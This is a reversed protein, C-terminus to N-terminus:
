AERRLYQVCVCGVLVCGVMPPFFYRLQMGYIGPLGTSDYQLWLAVYTLVVIGFSALLFLWCFMLEVAHLRRCVSCAALLVLVGILLLWAAAISMSGGHLANNSQGHTVSWMLACIVDGMTHPQTLLAHKRELMTEYSVLMPTTTYWNNMRMWFMLWVVALATGASCSAVMAKDAHEAKLLRRQMWPLILLLVVYPAFIFKTMAMVVGIAVCAYVYRRSVKVCAARYVMCTLLFVLAQTFSDASIAFSSRFILPPLLMTLGVVLRWRTLAAVACFMCLAYVLLMVVEAAYYTVGASWHLVKGLAFVAIQPAYSVPSNTATNNHPLEVRDPHGQTPKVTDVLAVTSDYGDFHAESYDFWQRDVSGGVTGTANHLYSRSSVPHALVDGNVIGDIRYVHSWVDPIHGPPTIVVFFGGILLVM